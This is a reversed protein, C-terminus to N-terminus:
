TTKEEMSAFVLTNGTGFRKKKATPSSPSTLTLPARIGAGRYAEMALVSHLMLDKRDQGFGVVVFGIYLLEFGGAYNQSTVFLAQSTPFTSVLSRTTLLRM